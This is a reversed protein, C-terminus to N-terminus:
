QSSSDGIAQYRNQVNICRSWLSKVDRCEQETECISFARGIALSADALAASIRRARLRAYTEASFTFARAM